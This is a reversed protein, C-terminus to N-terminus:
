ERFSAPKWLTPLLARIAAPGTVRRRQGPPLVFQTLDSYQVDVFGARTMYNQLVGAGEWHRTTYVGTTLTAVANRNGDEGAANLDGFRDMCLWRGGPKLIRFTREIYAQKPCLYNISELNWVADFTDEGFTATMLDAMEFKTLHALKRDTAIRRAYEINPASNSVGLVQAGFKEALWFATGGLGCGADLIQQGKTVKCASAMSQVANMLAAEVTLTGPLWLPLHIALNPTLKSYFSQLATYHDRAVERSDM